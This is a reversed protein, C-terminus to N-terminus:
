AADREGMICRAQPKSGTPNMLDTLASSAILHLSVVVMSDEDGLQVRVCVSLGNRLGVIVDSVHPEAM